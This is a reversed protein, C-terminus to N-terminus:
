NEPRVVKKEKEKQEKFHCLGTNAIKKKKIYWAQNNQTWKYVKM